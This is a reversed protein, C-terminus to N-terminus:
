TQVNKFFFTFFSSSMKLCFDCFLVMRLQLKLVLIQIANVFSNWCFKRATVGGGEKDPELSIRYQFVEM